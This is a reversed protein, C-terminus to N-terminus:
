FFFYSTTYIQKSFHSDFAMSRYNLLCVSCARPVRRSYHHRLCLTPYSEQMHKTRCYSHISDPVSKLHEMLLVSYWTALLVFCKYSVYALALWWTGHKWSRCQNGGSSLVFIYSTCDVRIFNNICTSVSLVVSPLTQFPWPHTCFVPYTLEITFLAAYMYLKFPIVLQQCM